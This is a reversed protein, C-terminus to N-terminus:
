LCMCGGREKFAISGCAMAAATEMAVDSGPKDADIKFAQRNPDMREPSTWTNHDQSGVGVQSVDMPLIIITTTTTTTIVVAVVVIIIIIIILDM